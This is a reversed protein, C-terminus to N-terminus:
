GNPPGFTDLLGTTMKVTPKKAAAVAERDKRAAAAVREAAGPAPTGNTAPKVKVAPLPPTRPKGDKNDVMATAPARVEGPARPTPSTNTRRAVLEQAKKEREAKAVTEAARQDREARKKEEVEAPDDEKREEVYTDGLDIGGLDPFKPDELLIMDGQIPKGNADKIIKYGYHLKLDDETLKRGAAYHGWALCILAQQEIWRGGLGETEAPTKLQALAALLPEMEIAKGSLLKWFEEAEDWRSFDLGNDNRHRKKRYGDGDAKSCAMLYMITAAKGPSVEPKGAVGKRLQYLIKLCKKLKDHRDLFDMSERHTQYIVPIGQDKGAEGAGTRKWLLDIANSLMMSATKRDSATLEPYDKPGFVSPLINSTYIVDAESRPRVNNITQVVRPDESVGRVVITELVPPGDPWHKKWPSGKQRHLQCALKFGVARTQGDLVRGFASITLTEGNVTGLPLTVKQGPQIVTGDSMIYPEEDDSYVAEVTGDITTPGAWQRLLVSQAYKRATPEDFPRNCDNNWCACLNGEEDKVVFPMAQGQAAFREPDFETEAETLKPDDRLRRATYDAQSEWGLIDDVTAETLANAGFCRFVVVEPYLLKRDTTAVTQSKGKVNKVPM